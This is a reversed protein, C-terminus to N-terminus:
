PYTGANNILIDIGSWRGITEKVLHEIDARQSVDCEVAFAQGRASEITGVTERAGDIRVDAVAVRCGQRGLEQAIARGIGQAAGTVIAVNGELDEFTAM